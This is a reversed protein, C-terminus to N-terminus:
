NSAEVFIGSGHMRLLSSLFDFASVYFLKAPVKQVGSCEAAEPLIPPLIVCDSENVLKWLASSLTSKWIFRLTLAAPACSKRSRYKIYGTTWTWRQTLNKLFIIYKIHIIHQIIPILGQCSTRNTTKWKRPTQSPWTASCFIICNYPSYRDGQGLVQEWVQISIQAWLRFYCLVLVVQPSLHVPNKFARGSMADECIGFSCFLPYMNM